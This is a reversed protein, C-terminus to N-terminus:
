IKDKVSEFFKRAGKIFALVFAEEDPYEDGGFLRNWLESDDLDNGPDIAKRLSNCVDEDDESIRSVRALEYFEAEKEAWYRGARNGNAVAEGDYKQKSARLREIAENMEEEEDEKSM